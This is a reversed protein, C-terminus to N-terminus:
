LLGQNQLEDTAALCQQKDNSSIDSIFTLYLVGQLKSVEGPLNRKLILIIQDALAICELALVARTNTASLLTGVPAFDEASGPIEAGGEIMTRPDEGQFEPSSSLSLDIAGEAILGAKALDIAIQRCDGASAGALDFVGVSKLVLMLGSRQVAGHEGRLLPGIVISLADCLAPDDSALGAHQRLPAKGLIEDWMKTGPQGIAQGGESKPERTNIVPGWEFGPVLAGIRELEPLLGNQLAGDLVAECQQATKNAFDTIGARDLLEDYLRVLDSRDYAGVSAALDEVKLCVESQGGSNQSTQMEMSFIPKDTRALEIKIDMKVQADQALFELTASPASVREAIVEVKIPFGGWSPMTGAFSASGVRHLKVPPSDFEKPLTLVMADVEPTFVVKGRKEVPAPQTRGLMSITGQGGTVQYTFLSTLPEDGAAAIYQMNAWGSLTGLFIQCYGNRCLNTLEVECQGVGVGGVVPANADPKGYIELSSGDPASDICAAKAIGGCLLMAFATILLRSVPM